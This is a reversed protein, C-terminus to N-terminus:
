LSKMEPISNTPVIKDQVGDGTSDFSMSDFIGDGNTDLLVCARYTDVQGDGNTDIGITDANGDGNTDVRVLSTAAQGYVADPMQVIIQGGPVAGPPLEVSFMCGNPSQVVISDGPKGGAPVIVGFPANPNVPVAQAMELGINPAPTAPVDPSWLEAEPVADLASAAAKAIALTEAFSQQAGSASIASPGSVCRSIDYFHAIARLEEPKLLPQPGTWLPNVATVTAGGDGSVPLVPPIQFVVWDFEMLSLHYITINLGVAGQVAFPRSPVQFNTGSTANPPVIVQVVQGDPQQVTLISGPAADAPVTVSFVAAQTPVSTASLEDVKMDLANDLRTLYGDSGCLLECFSPQPVSTISTRLMNMQQVLSPGLKTAIGAQRLLTLASEANSKVLDISIACFNPGDPPLQSRWLAASDGLGGVAPAVYSHTRRWLQMFLNASAFDGGGCTRVWKQPSIVLTNTAAAGSNGGGFSVHFTAGGRGFRSRGIRRRAGFRM